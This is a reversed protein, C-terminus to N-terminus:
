KFVVSDNIVQVGISEQNLFKKLESILTYNVTNSDLITVIYSREQLLTGDYHKYYGTTNSVTFGQPYESAFEAKIIYEIYDKNIEYDKTIKDKTGIYYNVTM